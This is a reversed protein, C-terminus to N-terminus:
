YTKAATKADNLKNAVRKHYKLKFSSVVNSMDLTLANLSKYDTSYIDSRTYM